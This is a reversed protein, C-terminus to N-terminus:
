PPVLAPTKQPPQTQPPAIVPRPPPTQQGPALPPVRLPVAIPTSTIAPPMQMPGSQGIPTVTTISPLATGATGTTVHQPTQTLVTNHPDPVIGGIQTPPNNNPNIQIGAQQTHPVVVGHGCHPNGVGGGQGNGCNGALVTAPGILSAIVLSITANNM